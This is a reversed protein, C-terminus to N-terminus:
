AKITIKPKKTVKNYYKSGAYKVVATFKGKKKLNTIKFTAVGKKNTKAYFTKKNVRLSVKTNKMVKGKNTKLTITYKKTKVSRKFTKAKATLKPTAKKVVVKISISSKVYSSDGAFSIVATYSKPALKILLKVQGSSNTTLNTTKGNLNISVKKNKLINGKSDKLTAVLYKGSNYVTSINYAVIKTPVPNKISVTGTKVFTSYKSDGSYTISYSYTGDALAPMNVTAVGNVVPFEYDVGNITLIVKGTADAPLSIKVSGDSSTNNLPPIIIDREDIPTRNDLVVLNNTVSESTRPNISTVTYNGPSLGIKLLAVGNLDTEAPYDTGNVKFKVYVGVLPSGDSEYFTAIFDYDGGFTVNMDSAKVTVIVKDIKLTGEKSFSSYKDDGSYTITYEYDGNALDPLTIDAKGNIVEAHSETGNITITVTGSADSPLDIVFNNDMGEMTEPIDIIEITEVKTVKFTAEDNEYDFNNNGEFFAVVVYNGLELCGINFVAKGSRIEETYNFENLELRVIGTVDERLTVTINTAQGIEIDYANVILNPNAKNVNVYGHYVSESYTSDVPTLTAFLDYNGADLNEFILYYVKNALVDMSKVKDGIQVEFSGSVSSCVTVNIDEGYYVDKADVFLSSPEQTINLTASKSFVNYNGNGNYTVEVQYEGIPLDNIKKIIVGDEPIFEDYVRENGIKITINGSIQQINVTITVNEGVTANEVVLVLIPDIKFVEFNESAYCYEFNQLDYYQAMISYNGADLKSIQLDISDDASLNFTRSIGYDNELTIMVYANTNYSDLRITSYFDQNYSINEVDIVVLDGIDELLYLENFTRYDKYEFSIQHYGYSEDIRFSAQGKGDTFVEYSVGDFTVNVLEGPGVPYGYDDVVTVIFYENTGLVEILNDNGIIRDLIILNRSATEGTVKNYIVVDYEGVGIKADLTAIGNEDTTLNYETSNVYFVGDDNRMICNLTFSIEQNILERAYEDLFRAQFDLGSNYTKIMNECYISPVITITNTKNELTEANITFIKYTGIDLVINLIAMGNNNTRITYNNGNVEFIAFGNILPKGDNGLLQVEYDIGTNYARTMNQSLISTFVNLLITKDENVMTNIATVEYQGIELGMDFIAVGNEDTRVVNDTGNFCFAVFKNVLVNGYEDYFTAQLHKGTGYIIATNNFEIPYKSFVHFVTINECSEHYNDGSYIIKVEHKGISPKVLTYSSGANITTNYVNDVYIALTGGAGSTLKPRIVVNNGNLVNEIEFNLTPKKLIIELDEYEYISDYKDDGSYDILVSYNSAALNPVTFITKGNDLTSSYWTNKIYTRINGTADENLTVYITASNDPELNGEISFTSNLRIVNFWDAFSTSDYYEDGNYVVSIKHNGGVFFPINKNDRISITANYIDDVYIDLFGTAGDTISPSVTLNDGWLIDNLSFDIGTEKFAVNISYNSSFSNYKDDGGYNLNYIYKGGKINPVNLIARSNIIDLISGNVIVNGTADNNLQFIINADDGATLNVVILQITPNLKNVRFTTTDECSAYFNNGNYVIRVTHNGAPLDSLLIDNGTDVIKIFENNVFVSLNGYAGSTLNYTINAIDDVQINKSSINIISPQTQISIKNEYSISNFNVDGMYLVNYNYDGAPLDYIYITSNGKYLTMTYSKNNITLIIEGTSQNNLSVLLITNGATLNKCLVSIHPNLKNVLFTTTNECSAFHDDGSYIVKVTHNDGNLGTLNYTEGIIITTIYYDDVYIKISGTANSSVVPSIIISEGYNIDDLDLHIFSKAFVTFEKTDNSYDYYEDANYIATIIYRGHKIDPISVNENATVNRLFTNNLYLSINGLESGTVQFSINLLDDETINNISINVNSERLELTMTHTVNIPNLNQDGSYSITFNHNGAKLNPISFNAYNIFECTYVNNNISLSINGSADTEFSIYIDVDGAKPDAINAIINPNIKNISFKSTNESSYYYKNDNYRLTLNYEGVNLDSLNYIQGVTFNDKFEGNIFISIIGITDTPTIPNLCITQSFLTDDVQFNIFSHKFEVNISKNLLFPYYHYDGSYNLLYNLTGGIINPIKIISKGDIVEGVYTNNNILLYIVGEADDNLMINFTLDDGAVVNDEHTINIHTDEGFVEFNASINKLNYVKNEPCLVTINYIGRHLNDLSFEIFSSNKSVNYIISNNVTNYIYVTINENYGLYKIDIEESEGFLIDYVRINLPADLKCSSNDLKVYNLCNSSNNFLCDYLTGNVGCWYIAGSSSISSNNEFSCNFITGSFGSWYVNIGCLYNTNAGSKIHYTTNSFTCNKIIGNVGGWFVDGGYIYSYSFGSSANALARSNTFICDAIISDRGSLYIAGGYSNSSGKFTYSSSSSNVFSSNFIMANSGYWYIAGGCSSSVNCLSSSNIFSCNDIVGDTANWYIAGGYSSGGASSSTSNSTSYIFSSNTLAGNSNQWFIAGGYSYAKQPSNPSLANSISASNNFSCNNIIGNMGYWYIAGGYSGVPFNYNKFNSEAISTSNIFSCNNIIGNMGYWYIAGGYSYTYIQSTNYAYVPVDITSAHATTNIFNCNVLSGDVGRWYIAGGYSYSSGESPSHNSNSNIFSCNSLTGNAGDWYITGGVQFHFNIFSINKLVVNDSKINFARCGNKGDIIFGNGNITITKNISIGVVYNYDWSTYVYNRTLNLEKNANNIENALDTFTGNSNATLINSNSSSKINRESEDYNIEVNYNDDDLQVDTSELDVNDIEGADIALTDDNIGIDENIESASVGSIALLSIFFIVFFM